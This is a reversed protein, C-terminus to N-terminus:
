PLGISRRRVASELWLAYRIRWLLFQVRADPKLAPIPDLVGDIEAHAGVTLDEMLYTADSDDALADSGGVPVPPPGIGGAATISRIRAEYRV